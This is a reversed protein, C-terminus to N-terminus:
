RETAGKGALIPSRFKTIRAVQTEPKKASALALAYSRQRGPTLAAFAGALEADADLAAALLPPLILDRAVAPAKTGAAAHRMLEALLAKIRNAKAAVEAANAFRLVNAQASEPGAKELGARDSLLGPNMFSLRFDGIFAGMVAINRGAHRYCPHGWKLGEDLGLGLCLARLAALGEGWRRASCDPTDFRACRGCGKSFYDEIETIM